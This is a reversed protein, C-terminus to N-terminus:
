QPLGARVGWLACVDQTSALATALYIPREFGGVHVVCVVEWIWPYPATLLVSIILIGWHSSVVTCQTLSHTCWLDTWTKWHKVHFSQFAGLFFSPPFLKHYMYTHTHDWSFLSFHVFSGSFDFNFICICWINELSWRFCLSRYVSLVRHLSLSQPQVCCGDVLLLFHLYTAIHM